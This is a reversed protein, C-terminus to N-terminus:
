IDARLILNWVVDNNTNPYSYMKKNIYISMQTQACLNNWFYYQAGTSLLIRQIGGFTPSLSGNLRLKDDLLGYQANTYLTTYTLSTQSQSGDTNTSIFKNSNITVSVITQLPINFTSLASLTIATSRTDIDHVTNDDRSSVSVSLLANHQIGYTFDKGLQFLIRNTKDNVANFIDSSTGDNKNSALLYAVTVNPFNIVPYYSVSINATTSTTTAGKTKATNDQLREFGGLLFVQNDILRQRDSIKYGALDTQLFSQGFSEFSEGHRLYAFRFSNNFYNLAIGSEYSLTPLYKKGLPVLNKNVTILNSVADRIQRVMQRQSETFTSDIEKNSISGSSIDKNTASFAAQGTIEINRNDISLLFDSGVVLNEQPCIGYKISNTDDSAKLYSFGIHSGDRRGFSTRIVFLKRDYTGYHLRAWVSSDRIIKFSANPFSDQMVQLSERSFTEFVIGEIKRVIKGTAIDVNFKGLTLNGIFGRMRKGNMILDTFVPYSDGFGIRLWPSKGGIFFRNQPQLTKKEENTVYLNGSIRFENYNGSATITARNYPTTRNSINEQRTELQVSGGYMWPSTTGVIKAPQGNTVSFNWSIKDVIKGQTDSIEVRITHLGVEPFVSANAPKVVYLDDSIVANKSLDIDDLFIKTLSKDISSDYQSLSFSILVDDSQLKEDTEPSLIVIEKKQVDIGQLDIKFPHQEPNELPYSEPIAKDRVILIFYYELFPSLVVEAPLMVSAANGVLSMDNRKFDREGFQRYAIEIRELLNSQVLDVQITLPEGPMITGINIKSIKDSVQSFAFTALLSLAITIITKRM